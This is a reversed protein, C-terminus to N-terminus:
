SNWDLVVGTYTDRQEELGEYAEKIEEPPLRHSILPDLQLEGRRLWDFIMAQKSQQSIRGDGAPYMPLCWELAGRVTIWRLHVASFFETLDGEVPVRPSGLLM